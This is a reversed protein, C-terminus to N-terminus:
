VAAYHCDPDRFFGIIKAPTRQLSHLVSRASAILQERSTIFAKAVRQKVTNWVWEDPNLQPSYAPLFFLKLKGDLQAVLRQVKKARHIRHGDVILFIPREMGTVLRELFDCFTAATATGEHVMFRLDGQASVASLRNVSFRAGTRPVIPTHGQRGWTTGRHDDSRIGAEDGFLILANCAQAERQIAPFATSRWHEVLAPDQEIARRLPRQSTLGLRHLIRGVSVTSLSVEFERRILEHVMELTWLAFPFKLQLPNKERIISALRPLQPGDRKPPRGPKPQTKLAEDGGYHYKALWTYLTRPNIDLTKALVEPSSGDEILHVVRLRLAEKGASSMKRGDTKRKCKM